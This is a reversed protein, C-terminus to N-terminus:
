RGDQIEELYLTTSTRHPMTSIVKYKGDIQWNRQIRVDKTYGVLTATYLNLDNNSYATRDEVVIYINATGEDQYTISSHNYRDKTYQPSAVAFEEMRGYFM